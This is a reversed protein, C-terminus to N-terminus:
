NRDGIKCQDGYYFGKWPKQVSALLAPAQPRITFSRLQSHFVAGLFNCFGHGPIRVQASDRSSRYFERIPFTRSALSMPCTLSNHVQHADKGIM